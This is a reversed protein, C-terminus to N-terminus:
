FVDKLILIIFLLFFQSTLKKKKIKDTLPQM